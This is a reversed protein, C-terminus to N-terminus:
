PEVLPLFALQAARLEQRGAQWNAPDDGFAELEVREGASMRELLRARL